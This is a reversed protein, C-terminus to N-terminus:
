TLKALAASLANRDVPKSISALVNLRHFRGMLSASNITRADMGSVLVVGGQYKREALFEMFQFGDAEPMHLDCLVVDPRTHSQDFLRSAAKGDSAMRVDTSGLEGLLDAVFRRMFEDDDVLLVSPSRRPVARALATTM